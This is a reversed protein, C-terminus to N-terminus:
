TKNKFKLATKARGLVAWEAWVWLLILKMQIIQLVRYTYRQGGISFEVVQIAMITTSCFFLKSLEEIVSTVFNGLRIINAILKQGLEAWNYSLINCILWKIQLFGISIKCSEASLQHLNWYALLLYAVFFPRWLSNWLSIHLFLSVKLTPWKVVMESIWLCGTQFHFHFASFPDLELEVEWPELFKGSTLVLFSNKKMIPSWLYDRKDTKPHM